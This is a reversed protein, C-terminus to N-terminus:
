YNTQKDTTGPKQGASAELFWPKHFGALACAIDERVPLNFCFALFIEWSSCVAERRERVGVCLVCVVFM